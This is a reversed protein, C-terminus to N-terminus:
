YGGSLSNIFLNDIANQGFSSFDNLNGQGTKDFPNIMYAPNAPTTTTQYQKLYDKLIDSYWNKNEQGQWVDFLGTGITSMVDGPGTQYPQQYSQGTSWTGSPKLSSLSMLSSLWNNRAAEIAAAKQTDVGVSIDGIKNAQEVGSRQALVDIAPSDQVGRAAGSARIKDIMGPSSPSGYYYENIRKKANEFIANYDPLNAGYTGSGGWDTLTKAWNQRANTAESYDPTQYWKPERWQLEDSNNGNDNGGFAGLSAAVGGGLLAATGITGASLGIFTHRKNTSEFERNFFPNYSHRM